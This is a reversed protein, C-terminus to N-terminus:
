SFATRVSHGPKSSNISISLSTKELSLCIIEAIVAPRDGNVSTQLADVFCRPESAEHARERLTDLPVQNRRQEVEIHKHAIIEDLITTM